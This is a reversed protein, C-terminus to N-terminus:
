FREPKYWEPAAKLLDGIEEQSLLGAQAGVHQVVNMSNIPAWQLAGELNSGKILAAV